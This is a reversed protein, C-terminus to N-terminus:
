EKPEVLKLFLEKLQKESVVSPAGSLPCTGKQTKPFAIVERISDSGTIMTYLRDLGLAIGAHVPAGFRFAKLMFGFKEEAEEDSIGMTKFVKAQQVSDHIRISGSALESGNLVLDYSCARINGLDGTDLKHVDEKNPATFPHHAAVWRKEEQDYEFMPFDVVWLFAFQENTEPRMDPKDSKYKAMAQAHAIRRFPTPIDINLVKKFSYKVLEEILAFIDEQDVFSMEIDLQTFEPQRDKRLDEDRFCRVIQYYRDMGAVMLLQKLIQPSQPLAYFKNPNLRSPVLYDRAGEPTSKTLYPTEIELFSKEDLFIRFAHNFQHRMVLKQAVSKRRLDLYRYELRIDEGLDANEVIPFPLDESQNIIELEAALLEVKGTPINENITGQPRANVQGKIRVVSENKLKKASENLEKPKPLFVVQTIGYRDRIDIFILKGHDRRTDVWGCLIVEKGVAGENLEGCTHTRLM